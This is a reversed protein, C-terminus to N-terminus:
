NLTGLAKQLSTQTLKCDIEADIKESHAQLWATEASLVDTMTIVGEKYGLTAVRLNENAQELNKQAMMLKKNAENVRFTEQNVQLEIKERAETARLTTIAAEAKAARM